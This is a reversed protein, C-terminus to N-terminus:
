VRGPTASSLSFHSSAYTDKVESHTSLLFIRSYVNKDLLNVLYCMLVSTIARRTGSFDVSSVNM